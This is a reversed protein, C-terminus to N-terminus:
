RAEETTVQPMIAAITAPFVTDNIYWIRGDTEYGGPWSLLVDGNVLPPPSGMPTVPSRYNLGGIEDTNGEAPGASGGLTNLVRFAVDTIRKTKAQSTGDAAGSDIRNTAYKSSYRLGFQMVSAASSATFQGNAIVVDPSNAGDQMVALTEGELHDIGFVTTASTGDYTLGSDSYTADEQADGTQFEPRIYEVYRRTSGNITRSVVAWVDDRVGDPSPIVSLSEVKTDTGGLLHRAWARVQQTQDFAFSLLVGDGRTFWLTQYPEEQRVMATITSLTLHESRVTMDPAIFTDVDFSFQLGRIKRGSAQLFLVNEGVRIPRVPKAGYATQRTVKINNPGLPDSTTQTDVIFEAGITTVILNLAETLGVIDNAESSQMTVTVASEPLIEGTDDLAFSEFSNSTSMYVTQGQAFVLRERFFTTSTPFGNVTSWAGKQWITSVNGSGILTQPFRTLVTATATTGGQATIRAIGYGASRYIWEVGGDTVTGTIHAPISTGSTGTTIAEYEKGQSRVFDGATYATGTKWPDSATIEEQDIRIISGIDDAVFVSTSATITISGTAAGVYMSTTTANLPLFPGDGPDLTSFAWNTATTRSLKRPALTGSRDTIYLIDGTQVFDINLEGSSGELAAASYPSVIEYPTDAVGGSSYATYATGDVNDGHITTLEYDNPTKNAVIFWRGNLETMGAIGSIFVDDGDSYGHGTSSIVVPSAATAGTITTTTGTVVPARNFYFRCYLEGFEIQFALNRARIFPVLWTKDTSDKVARIFGTGGRRIAPGQISPIYNEMVHASSSYGQIDTRGDLLPTWEGANLASIIPSAKAM